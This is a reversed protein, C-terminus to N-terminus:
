FRRRAVKGLARLAGVALGGCREATEPDAARGSMTVAGGQTVIWECGAPRPQLLLAYDCTPKAPRDM